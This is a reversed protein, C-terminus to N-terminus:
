KVWRQFLAQGMHLREGSVIGESLRLTPPVIM